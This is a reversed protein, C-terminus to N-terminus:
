FYGRLKVEFGLYNLEWVRDDSASVEISIYRGTTVINAYADPATLTYPDSWAISEDESLTMRSGIRVTLVGYNKAGVIVRSVTKVRGPAGFDIDNKAVYSSVAVNTNSDHVTMINAAVTVLKSQTSIGASTNWVTNDDDWVQSDADWAESVTQDSVLGEAAHRVQDLDRFGWADKRQDWVLARNCQVNGTEPYCIWVERRASDRVIFLNRYNTPDVSNQFASRTRADSISRVNGTDLRVIDGDSIVIHFEDCDCVARRTWAGVKAYKLPIAFVEQNFESSAGVYSALYVGSPKYIALSGQLKVGCMIRGPTDSLEASGADNDAAPTWSAPVTGPEAADSWRVLAGFDGGPSDIDMAFVHYKLVAISRAITGAPWDPLPAFPVGVNGGWYMPSNLGNNIIPVGNLLASSWQEPSTVVGPTEATFTVDDANPGEIAWVNNTGLSLWFNLGQLQANLVHYSQNPLTGSSVPYATRYGPIRGAFGNRFLVNRGATYFNPGVANAPIDLVLGGAIRFDIPDQSM